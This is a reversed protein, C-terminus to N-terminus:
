ELALEPQNNEVFRPRLKEWFQFFGRTALPRLALDEPRDVLALSVGAAALATRVAPLADDLPGIEPRLTAVEDLHCARAWGALAAALDAPDERHPAHKWHAAARAAADDLAGHIWAVRADSYRHRRWGEPHGTVAVAAIAPLSALPSAEPLLDEEHMWIGTRGGGGAPPHHPLAPRTVEPRGPSEPPHPAPNELARLGDRNADLIAPDLYRELNSRRALYTKGPTQLGAVWRWSLTNSAPDGDLLHGFYFGAGWAWPLREHHVWWAAHWMRAHNHLYGTELLERTFHDMVPNGSRGGMVARARDGAASDDPTDNAVAQRWVQPRHSLWAKWYRRWYVEQVFKEVRGFGHADMAARATESELLLRHRLLPSLRSVSPHGPRVFNRDRAYLRAAPLFAEMRALGASRTNPFDM